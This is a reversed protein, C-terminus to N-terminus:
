FRKYKDGFMQFEVVSKDVKGNASAKNAIFLIVGLVIWGGVLCWEAPTLYRHPERTDTFTLGEGDRHLRSVEGGSLIRKLIM